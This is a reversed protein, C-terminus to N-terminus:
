PTESSREIIFDPRRKVEEYIKAIYEGIVGLSIMIFSGILLLTIIVTTFGSTSIGHVRSWLAETGVTAGLIFTLLGLFSIVRLPASSFSVMATLTLGMLSRLSWASQGTRRPEVDFELTCQPLGIWSALGRYLRNWEPMQRTLIDVARRDLLKFDSSKQLDIEGMRTLLANVVNARVTALWSEEGRYRKVGHVVMAGADWAAIMKPILAPPHQLDADITIVASGKAHRLGALLAAEKGFNRSLRLVSIAVGLGSLAAAKDFTADLSGDDVVVIEAAYATDKLVAALVQVASQIGAAENFAPVVLSILKRDTV